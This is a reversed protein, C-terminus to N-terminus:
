SGRGVANALAEENKHLWKGFVTEKNIFKRDGCAICFTEYNKNESFVRDVFARGGCRRCYM